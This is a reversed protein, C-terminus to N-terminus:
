LASAVRRSMDISDLVEKLARCRAFNKQTLRMIHTVAIINDTVEETVIVRPLTRKGISVAKM